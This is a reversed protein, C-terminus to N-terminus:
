FRYSVIMKCLFSGILQDGNTNQYVPLEVDAYISVPHIDFEIGPSLLVRQYGSAVPDAAASGSDQRRVSVLMQAIPTVTVRGFHLGTYYIGGAADLEAGPRYSGYSDSSYLFPLDFLAQSYWDLHASSLLTHRYFAGLLLDTSGTGIESDRDVDGYANNHTFNGTPLKLGFEIGLSQDDFFGDYIGEVRLDGMATWTSHVIDHGTAGGTTEFFRNGIPLEAQIGWNRNFMYQFGPTYWNTEIKKDPNYSAPVSTHGNWNTVQDQFDYEIWVMGSTGEPFMTSTAVDFVGCGCACAYIPDTALSALKEDGSLSLVDSTPSSATAPKLEDPNIRTMSPPLLVMQSQAIAIFIPSIVLTVIVMCLNFSRM